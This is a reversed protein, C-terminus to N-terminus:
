PEWELHLLVRLYPQGGVIEVGTLWTQWDLGGFDSTGPFHVSYFNITSYESPWAVEYTAGGVKVQNCVRQAASTFVTQLSPLVIQQFSGIVPEGSGYGLGWEVQFTSDFVFRAHERDYNVVRGTRIFQLDLGNVPSILSALLEGNSSSLASSFSDLLVGVRADQCFAPPVTAAATPVQTHTATLYSQATATPPASTFTPITAFPSSTPTPQPLTCATLIALLVFPM